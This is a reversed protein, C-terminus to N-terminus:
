TYQTECRRDHVKVRLKEITESADHLKVAYFGSLLILGIFIFITVVWQLYISKSKHIRSLSERTDHTNKEKKDSSHIQTTETSSSGSEDTTETPQHADHERRASPLPHHKKNNNSINNDDDNNKFSPRKPITSSRSSHHVENQLQHIRVEDSQRSKQVQRMRDELEHLDKQLEMRIEVSEHLSFSLYGVVFCLSVFLLLVILRSYQMVITNEFLGTKGAASNVAPDRVSSSILSYFGEGGGSRTTTTPVDDGKHKQIDDRLPARSILLPVNEESYIGNNNNM